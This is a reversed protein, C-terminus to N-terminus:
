NGARLQIQRKEGFLAAPWCTTSTWPLGGEPVKEQRSVSLCGPDAESRVASMGSCDRCDASFLTQVRHRERGFGRFPYFRCYRVHETALPYQLNLQRREAASEARGLM